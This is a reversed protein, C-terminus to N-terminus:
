LVPYFLYLLVKWSGQYFFVWVMVDVNKRAKQRFFCGLSHHV